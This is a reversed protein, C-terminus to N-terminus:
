LTVMHRRPTADLFVSLDEEEGPCSHLRNRDSMYGAGTSKAASLGSVM